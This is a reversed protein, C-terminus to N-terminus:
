SGAAREAKDGEILTWEVIRRLVGGLADDWAAVIPQMGSGHVPATAEFSRSGVIEQRPQRILKANVRVRVVKNGFDEFQFERLETQLNFDSRLGITHRGVAVIRRSNEFSEVLLTQVMRPARETWRTDAFYKLEIRSPRIAIRSTDLGGAALPEEIVLQWGVAPLGSDFTSKPTLNFLNSPGRPVQLLNGCAALMPLLAVVLLWRSLCIM